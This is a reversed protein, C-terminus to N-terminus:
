IVKPRTNPSSFATLFLYTDVMNRFHLEMFLWNWSISRLKWPHIRSIWTKCCFCGVSTHFVRSQFSAMPFSSANRLQCPHGILRSLPIWKMPCPIFNYWISDYLILHFRGYLIMHVADHSFCIKYCTRSGLALTLIRLLVTLYSISHPKFLSLIIRQPPM